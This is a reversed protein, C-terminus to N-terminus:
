YKFSDPKKAVALNWTPEYIPKDERVKIDWIITEQCRKKAIEHYEKKLESWIFRRNELLTAVWASGSGMFPDFVIGNKPVVARVFRQVLAVPFQCPHATKEIHNSKVNPIEWVDGPNKWLPNWSFEWKKLGKSYRKWPYKQPIRISDTDFEYSDWKTFWLITEHRWSFRKSTHLWHWFVWNIRNRLVITGDALFNRIADFVLWDLPMITNNKVHYGVQWCISGGTKTIRIIEPFLIKHDELFDLYSKSRDYEKGMFYPPSTLVLDVSENDISKIFEFANWHHLHYKSWHPIKM